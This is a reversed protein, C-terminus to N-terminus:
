GARSLIREVYRAVQDAELNVHVGPKLRGLTTVAWTHPIINIGFRTDDVENVTLSVGDVCISGKPAVYKALHTPVDIVVRHSEHEEHVSVVTGLGDVHGSVLHGGLEDGMKLARELNLLTGVEWDRATTLRCTEESVQVRWRSGGEIPEFGILTLCVGQHAISAGMSLSALDYRSDVVFVTDAGPRRHAEAIRGIDTIIGTFM